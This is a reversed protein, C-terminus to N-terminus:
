QVQGNVQVLKGQGHRDGDKFMGVYLDGNSYFIRGFGNACGDKFIGEFLM